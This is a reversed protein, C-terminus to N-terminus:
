GDIYHTLIYQIAHEDNTCIIQDAAEKLEDCANEMALGLGAQAVLTLDNSSDGVGITQAPELGITQALKILANGKGARVYFIEVYRRGNTAVLFEGTEMIRKMCEDFENCDHFFCNIMEIEDLGRCFADFDETPIASSKLVPSYYGDVNYYAHRESTNHEANLYAKKRHRVVPMLDYDELIDLLEIGTQHPMCMTIRADTQKDYIVAGDSHIIYRVAPHDRIEPDMEYLTRGTCPVFQVGRKTMEEVAQWNEESVTRDSKLFTGDLDSAVIKYNGM